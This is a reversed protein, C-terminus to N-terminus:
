VLLEQLTMKFAGAIKEARDLTVREKGKLIRNLNPRPIEAALALQGQTMGLEELLRQVNQRFRNMAPSKAM